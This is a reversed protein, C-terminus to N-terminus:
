ESEQERREDKMLPTLIKDDGIERARVPVYTMANHNTKVSQGNIEYKWVGNTHTPAPPVYDYIVEYIYNTVNNALIFTATFDSVTAMGLTSWNGDVSEDAAVPCYRFFVSAYNPVYVVNDKVWNFVITTDNTGYSGNDRLGTMFRISVAGAKSGGYLMAVFAVALMIFGSLRRSGFTHMIRSVSYGICVAAFAVLAIALPVAWCLIEIRTWDM